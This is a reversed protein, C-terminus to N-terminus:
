RIYLIYSIYIYIYIINSVFGGTQLSCFTQIAEVFFWTSFLWWLCGGCDWGICARSASLGQSWCKVWTPCPMDDQWRQVLLEDVFRFVVKSTKGRDHRKWQRNIETLTDGDENSFSNSMILTKKFTFTGCCYWYVLRTNGFLQVFVQVKLWNKLSRSFFRQM